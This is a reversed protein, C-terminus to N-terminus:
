AAATLQNNRRKKSGTSKPSRQQSANTNNIPYWQPWIDSVELGIFEAIDHQLGPWKKGLAIGVASKHHGLKISLSELSEGSMRIEAKLKERHMPKKRRPM